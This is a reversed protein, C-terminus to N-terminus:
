KEYNNEQLYTIQEVIKRHREPCTRSDGYVVFTVENTDVPVTRFTYTKSQTESDTVFYDYLRGPQLDELWTKHIFATKEVVSNPDKQFKYRITEPTSQVTTHAAKIKEAKAFLIKWQGQTDTEWMVAARNNNVRLLFPGKTIQAPASDAPLIVLSVLILLLIPSTALSRCAPSNKRTKNIYM